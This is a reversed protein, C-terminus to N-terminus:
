LVVEKLKKRVLAKVSKTKPKAKFTTEEGTFPNIGKRAKRAPNVKRRLSLALFPFNFQGLRRHALDGEVEVALGQLVARVDKKNVGTADVIRQITETQKRRNVKPQKM